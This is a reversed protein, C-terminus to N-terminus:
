PLPAPARLFSLAFGTGFVILWALLIQFQLNATLGFFGPKFTTTSAARRTSWRIRLVQLVLVAVGAAVGAARAHLNTVADPMDLAHYVMATAMVALLGVFGAYVLSLLVFWARRAGGLDRWERRRSDFTRGCKPCEFQAPGLGTRGFFHAEVFRRCHPCRHIFYIVFM